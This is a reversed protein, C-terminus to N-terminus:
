NTELSIITTVTHIEEPNLSISDAEANTTEVCVMGHYERDGFDPMRAAKDSWPNWVVTSNSGEKSIIIKRNWGTDSITCLDATEPFFLDTEANVTIDDSQIHRSNDLTDIYEKGSLGSIKIKSIESINFYSHLATSFEIPFESTNECTLEVRLESGAVAKLTLKFDFTRFEEAIDDPTLEFEIFTKGNEMQGAAIVNWESIRAFGHAPWDPNQPHGGFWPWCVPIGGRIPKDAEYWSYESLWIVPECGAPAFNLVHAGHTAIAAAGYENDLRAVPMGNPGEEFNVNECGFAANLEEVTM